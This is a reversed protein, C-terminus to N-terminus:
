EALAIGYEKGEEYGEKYGEEKGKEEGEAYGDHYSQREGEEYGKEYGDDYGGEYGKDFEGSLNRDYANKSIVTWESDKDGMDIMVRAEQSADIFTIGKEKLFEIFQDLMDKAGSTYAGEYMTRLTFNEIDVEKSVFTFDSPIM